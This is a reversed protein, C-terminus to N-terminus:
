PKRQQLMHREMQFGRMKAIKIMTETAADLEEKTDATLIMTVGVWFMSQDNEKIDDMLFELDEKERRTQYSIDSSFDNNKNRKQQQKIINNEVSIYKNKLEATVIDRPIPVVDISVISHVPVSVLENLFEDTHSSPWKKM